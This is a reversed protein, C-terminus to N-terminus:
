GQRPEPILADRDMYNRDMDQCRFEHRMPKGEEMVRRMHERNFIGLFDRYEEPHINERAFTIFDEISQNVSLRCGWGYLFGQM